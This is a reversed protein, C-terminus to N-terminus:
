NKSPIPHEWILWPVRNPRILAACLAAFRVEPISISPDEGLKRSVNRWVKLFDEARWFDYGIRYSFNLGREVTIAAFEEHSDPVFINGSTHDFEEIFDDVVDTLKLRNSAILLVSIFETPSCILDAAIERNSFTRSRTFLYAETGSLNPQSIEGGYRCFSNALLGYIIEAEESLSMHNATVLFISLPAAQEESVAVFSCAYQELLEKVLAKSKRCYGDCPQGLNSRIYYGAGVWGLIKLLRL